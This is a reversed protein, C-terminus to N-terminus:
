HAPYVPLPQRLVPDHRELKNSKLLRQGFRGVYNDVRTPGCLWRVVRPLNKFNPNAEGDEMTKFLMELWLRWRAAREDSFYGDANQEIQKKQELVWKVMEIVAGINRFVAWM